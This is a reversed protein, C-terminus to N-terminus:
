SPSGPRDGTAPSATTVAGSVAGPGAPARFLVTQPDRSLVEGVGRDGRGETRDPEATVVGLRQHARQEGLADLHDSEFEVRRDGGVQERGGLSAVFQAVQELVVRRVGRRAVVRRRAALEIEAAGLHGGLDAGSAIRERNSGEDFRDRRAEGFLAHALQVFLDLVREDDDEGPHLVDADGDIAGEELLQILLEGGVDGSETLFQARDGTM